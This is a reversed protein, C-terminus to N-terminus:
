RDAARNAQVKALLGALGSVAAEAWLDHGLANPHFLDEGFVDRRRFAPDAATVDILVAGPQRAVVEEIRQRIARSRTRLVSALPLPVRALNGLDGINTFAAAPARATVEEVLAEFDAAFRRTPTGHIADNSGVAVVVADPQLPWVEPLRARVDAVRSGGVALSRVDVGDDLDLRALARHLWIQEPGALGPGTTTSDGLVVLRIPAETAGSRLSADHGVLAPLPRKVVWALEAALTALGAMGLAGAAVTGWRAARKGDM